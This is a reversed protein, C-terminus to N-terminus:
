KKDVFIDPNKGPYNQENFLIGFFVRWIKKQSLFINMDESIKTYNHIRCKWTLYREPTEVRKRRRRMALAITEM